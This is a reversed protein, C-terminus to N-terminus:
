ATPASSSSRQTLDVELAPPEADTAAEQVTPTPAARRGHRVVGVAAAAAGLLMVFRSAPITCRIARRATM